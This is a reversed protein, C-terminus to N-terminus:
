IHNPYNSKLIHPKDSPSDTEVVAPVAPPEKIIRWVTSASIHLGVRALINAIKFRGLIPCYLKLQQVVYRLYDPYRTPKEPLQVINNGLCVVRLWCRVTQVTVQFRRALQSNNLGRATKILLIELRETPLFEPRKKPTLCNFRADKIALERELWAIECKLRENEGRLRLGDCESGDPWNRANLIALRALTIVHLLALLVLESWGLPLPIKPLPKLELQPEFETM